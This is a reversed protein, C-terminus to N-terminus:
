ELDDVSRLSESSESESFNKTPKTYAKLSNEKEYDEKKVTKLM